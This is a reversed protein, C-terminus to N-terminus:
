RIKGLISIKGLFYELSSCLGSFGNKLEKISFLYLFLFSVKSVITKVGILILFLPIM